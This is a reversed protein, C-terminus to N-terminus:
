INVGLLTNFALFATLVFLGNLDNFLVEGFHEIEVMNGLTCSM